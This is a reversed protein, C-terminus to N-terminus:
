FPALYPEVEFQKLVSRVRWTLLRVMRVRARRVVRRRRPAKMSSQRAVTDLPSDLSIGAVDAQFRNM